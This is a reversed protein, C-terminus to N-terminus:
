SPPLARRIFEKGRWGASARPLLGFDGQIERQERGTEGGRRDVRLARPRKILLADRQEDLQDEPQRERHLRDDREHVDRRASGIERGARFPGHVSM